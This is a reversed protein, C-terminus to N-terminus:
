QPYMFFIYEVMLPAPTHFAYRYGPNFKAILLPLQWIHDVTHYASLKLKPSYRAICQAAGQLAMLEAGEIDLKILDVKPLGKEEVFADLSTVECPSANPAQASCLSSASADKHIYLTTKQNFLGANVLTVNDPLGQPRSALIANYNNPEPEFSYVHGSNGVAQSFQELEGEFAFVGGDIVIDGPAADTPPHAYMDGSPIIYATNGTIRSKIVSAFRIKSADDLLNYVQNLVRSRRAVFDERQQYVFPAHFNPKVLLYYSSTRAAIAAIAPYPITM